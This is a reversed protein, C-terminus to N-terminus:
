SDSVYLLGDASDCLKSSQIWFRVSAGGEPNNGVTIDGGHKQILTHCTYLGLGAHGKEVSRSSDGKYFKNFVMRMDQSTFGPGSDTIEFDVREESIRVKWQIKGYEPTFRISNAMINDLVQGLRHTDLCMKKSSPRVDECTYSLVIEKRSCLLAYEETKQKIFSVIDVWEPLLSFDPHEIESLGTMEELLRISRGTNQLITDVYKHLRELRVTESDRLNEAHGQIITLPTRLDHAIAAVMERRVQESRWERELSDYLAKRMEEFADGLEKLEKAGKIEEMEFDLDRRKIRHAGEILKAIPPKIKRSFVQGFFFTFITLYILPMAMNVVIFLAMFLQKDPNSALLNLEYRLLIAGQVEQERNIIPVYQIFKGSKGSTTNIRRLLEERNNVIRETSTGYRVDGSKGIVQYDIGEVPIVKELAPRAAPNLLAENNKRVYSLIAPIQQEYYNAPAPFGGPAKSIYLISLGWTLLTAGITCVLILISTYMFQHRLSLRDFWRSTNISKGM